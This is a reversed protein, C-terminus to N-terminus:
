QKKQKKTRRRLGFFLIILFFIGIGIRIVANRKEKARRAKQLEVFYNASRQSMQEIDRLAEKKRTDEAISDDFRRLRNLVSSDNQILKQRQDKSTQNNSQSSCNIVTFLFIIVLFRRM